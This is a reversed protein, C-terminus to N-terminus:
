NKPSDSNPQFWALTFKYGVSFTIPLLDNMSVGYNNKLNDEYAQVDHSRVPVLLTFSWYGKSTSRKHLDIGIGFTPGYFIKNLNTAGSVYIAANYGYMALFHPDVVSSSPTLRLKMGVNYGLGAIAYGGGV